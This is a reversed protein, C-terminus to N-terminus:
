QLYVTVGAQTSATGLSVSLSVPGTGAGAPVIANVQLVGSVLGSTEGYAGSPVTAPQGGILVTPVYYPQPIPSVPKTVSGTAAAPNVVGEGTMYIILYWGKSAPNSARNVGQYTGSADYQVAAAQGTGGSVTFIGPVTAAVNVPFANSTQNLYLVEISTTALGNVEYPVVANIQGANVFILPALYGGPLFKVQVGGM